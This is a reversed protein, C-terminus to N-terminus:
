STSCTMRLSPTPLEFREQPVLSAESILHYLQAILRVRSQAGWRRVRLPGAPCFETGQWRTAVPRLFVRLRCPCGFPQSLGPRCSPQSDSPGEGERGRGAIERTNGFSRSSKAHLGQRVALQDASPPVDFRGRDRQPTSLGVSALPEFRVAEVRAGAAAGRRDSRADDQRCYRM